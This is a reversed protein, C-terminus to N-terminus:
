AFVSWVVFKRAAIAFGETGNNETVASAKVGGSANGMAISFGSNRFM